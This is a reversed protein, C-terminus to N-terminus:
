PGGTMALNILRDLLEPFGIGAAQAAEPLLSTPTMGPITNVELVCPDDGRVIMDVRSMGRCGILWHARRAYDRALSAARESVRAPIIHRSGGPAYKAHYDYFGSESVIEILPLIEPDDNGLLGATIETGEVFEEILAAEDHKLAEVIAPRLEGTERVITCGVTSGEANPKVIVPFGGAERVAEFLSAESPIPGTKVLAERPVPIGETRLLRKTVSKNMALASALVGSGTYPVGLTELFGQIAGDEGGKGHLALFVVDPLKRELCEQFPILDGRSSADPGAPANASCADSKLAASTGTLPPTKAAGSLTWADAGIVEYRNRNLAALVQRGTSLSVERESSRGGMLVVVRLKKMTKMM